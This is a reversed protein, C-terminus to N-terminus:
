HPRQRQPTQVLDLYEQAWEQIERGLHTECYSLFSASAQEFSQVAIPRLADPDTRDGLPRVNVNREREILLRSIPHHFTASSFAEREALSRWDARLRLLNRDLLQRGLTRPPHKATLVTAGHLPSGERAVSTSPKEKTSM